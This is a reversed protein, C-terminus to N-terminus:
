VFCALSDESIMWNMLRLEIADDETIGAALLDDVGCAYIIDHSAAGIGSKPLYKAILNLGLLANCKEYASLDSDGAMIEEFKEREM